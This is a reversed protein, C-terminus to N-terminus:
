NRYFWYSCFLFQSYFESLIGQDGCIPWLDLDYVPWSHVCCKIEHHYVRTGVKTHKHGLALYDKGYCFEHHLCLEWKSALSWPWVSTVFTHSVDDWPSVSKRLIHYSQWMDISLFATAWVCDNIQVQPWLDLDYQWPIMFLCLVIEWPSLGM